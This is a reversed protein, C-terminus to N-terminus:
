EGCITSVSCTDDENTEWTDCDLGEVYAVCEAALVGDFSCDEDEIRNAVPESMQDLCADFDNNFLDRYREPNCKEQLQCYYSPYDSLFAEKDIPELGDDAKGCGILGVLIMALRMGM